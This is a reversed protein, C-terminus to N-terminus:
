VHVYPIQDYKFRGKDVDIKRGGKESTGKRKGLLKSEVKERKKKQHYQSKWDPSQAKV